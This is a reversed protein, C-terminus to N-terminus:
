VVKLINPAVDLLVLFINFISNNIFEVNDYKITNVKPYRTFCSIIFISNIAFRIFYIVNFSHIKIYKIKNTTVCNIALFNAFFINLLEAIFHIIELSPDPIVSIIITYETTDLYIPSFYPTAIGWNCNPCTWTSDCDKKEYIMESGCKECIMNNNM